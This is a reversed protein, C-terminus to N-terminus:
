NNKYNDSWGYHLKKNEKKRIESNYWAIKCNASHMRYKEIENSNNSYNNSTTTTTSLIILEQHLLRGAIYQLELDTYIQDIQYLHGRKM